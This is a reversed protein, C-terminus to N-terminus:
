EASVNFRNMAADLGEALWHEVADAGLEVLERYSDLEKGRLKRLVYNGVDAGPYGGGVGMRLRPIEDTGLSQIISNLGKQGGPGGNARIRLRGFPLNVDDCVVILEKPSVKYWRAAASVPRGSLNMYSLPRLLVADIRPSLQVAMSEPVPGRRFVLSNRRALEEVVAFGINHPTDDYESGPNGLGVILRM